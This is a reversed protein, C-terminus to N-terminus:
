EGKGIMRGLMEQLQFTPLGVVNTYSGEISKVGILGIWDQIGYAGAKDMAQHHTVYHLIEDDSLEKFTVQTTCSDTELKGKYYIVIGSIVAHTKGSLSRLMQIADEKSSPKGLVEDDLVVITDATILLEDSAIDPILVEAKKQAIYVAIADKKLEAPYSEDTEKIRVEFTYGLEELLQKRRPSQSGLIIKM